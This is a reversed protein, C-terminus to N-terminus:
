HRGASRASLAIHATARQFGDVHSLKFREPYRCQRIIQRTGPAPIDSGADAESLAFMGIDCSEAM